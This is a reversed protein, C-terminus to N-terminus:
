QKVIEVRRNQTRGADTDNSAVPAYPGCGFSGLRAAAVHYQTILAQMVAAARRKSLDMNAALQGVTDTHGAVWIKWDPHESLLKAVQELAPKSEDKVDAKGTDFLIGPVVAHGTSGIGTGLEAATAVVDQTLPVEQVAYVRYEPAGSISIYLWLGDKNWTLDGSAGSDYLKKYGAASLATNFNRILQPRSATSPYWYFLTDMQGEVTKQQDKGNVTITFNYTDDAKHSCNVLRSGPFRSLYPLDNCGQKDQAYLSNTILLCLAFPIATLLSRVANSCHKM